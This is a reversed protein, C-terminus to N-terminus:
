VDDHGNNTLIGVRQAVIKAAADWTFYTDLWAKAKEAKKLMAKRNKYAYMMKKGLDSVDPEMWKLESETEWGFVSPPEKETKKVCPLKDCPVAKSKVWLATENTAFDTHGGFDPTIVPIGCMMAEAITMGFGEGRAPQIYVDASAYLQKVEDATLRAHIVRIEPGHEDVADIAAQLMEMVPSEGYSVALILTVDDAATFASTYARLLVDVGKRWLAAGFFMFKFNKETRIKPPQPKVRDTELCIESAPKVGHPVIVIQM